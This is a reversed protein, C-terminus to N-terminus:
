NLCRWNSACNLCYLLMILIVSFASNKEQKTGKQSCARVPKGKITLSHLEKLSSTTHERRLNNAIFTNWVWICHFASITICIPVKTKRYFPFFLSVKRKKRSTICLTSVFCCFIKVRYSLLTFCHYNKQM